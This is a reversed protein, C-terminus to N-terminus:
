PEFDEVDQLVSYGAVGRESDHPAEPTGSCNFQLQAPALFVLRIPDDEATISAAFRRGCTRCFGGYETRKM